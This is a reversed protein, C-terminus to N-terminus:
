VTGKISVEWSADAQHVHRRLQDLCPIVHNQVNNLSCFKPQVQVKGRVTWGMGPQSAGANQAQAEPRIWTRLSSKATAPRHM